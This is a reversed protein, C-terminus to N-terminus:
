PEYVVRVSTGIPVLSFLEEIDAPYLRICGHSSRLGISTPQNTGHMLIGSFGLHMAYQGLPNRPGPRVVLPLIKGKREAERRISAPPHWAPNKTKSIIRTNGLPTSWGQRGIGVPYTTVTNGDPHYYFLRMDALNLVIGKRPGSPLTFQAPIIVSTNPKLLKGSLRPNARVMEYVGIDFLQALETLTDTETTSGAKVTRHEGITNGSSPITYTLGHVSSHYLGLLFTLGFTSVLIRKLNLIKLVKVMIKEDM